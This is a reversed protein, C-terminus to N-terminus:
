SASPAPKAKDVISAYRAASGISLGFMDALARLIAPNEIDCPYLSQPGHGDNVRALSRPGIYHWSSSSTSLWDILFSDLDDHTSSM